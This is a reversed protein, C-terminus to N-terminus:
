FAIECVEQAGLDRARTSAMGHQRLDVVCLAYDLASTSAPNARAMYRTGSNRFYDTADLERVHTLIYKHSLYASGCSNYLRFITM